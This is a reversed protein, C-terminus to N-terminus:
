LLSSKIHMHGVASKAGAGVIAVEVDVQDAGLFNSTVKRLPKDVTTDGSEVPSVCM